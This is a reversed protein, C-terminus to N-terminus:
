IKLLIHVLIMLNIKRMKDESISPAAVHELVKYTIMNKCQKIVGKELRSM